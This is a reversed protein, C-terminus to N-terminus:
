WTSSRGAAHHSLKLSNDKLNHRAPRRMSWAAKWGRGEQFVVKRLLVACGHIACSTIHFDKDNIAEFLQKARRTPQTSNAVAIQYGSRGEAVPLNLAEGFDRFLRGGSCNAFVADQAAL